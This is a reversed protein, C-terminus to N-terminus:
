GSMATFSQCASIEAAHVAMTTHGTVSLKICPLLLTTGTSKRLQAGLWSSTNPLPPIAGHM